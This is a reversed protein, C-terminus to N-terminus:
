HGRVFDIKGDIQELNSWKRSLPDLPGLTKSLLPFNWIRVRSKQGGGRCDWRRWVRLCHVRGRLLTMRRVFPSKDIALVQTIDILQRLPYTVFLFFIERGVGSGPHSVGAEGFNTPKISCFVDLTVAFVMKEWGIRLLAYSNGFDESMGFSQTAVLRLWPKLLLLCTRQRALEVSALPKADGEPRYIEIDHADLLSGDAVPTTTM